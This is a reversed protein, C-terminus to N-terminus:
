MVCAEQDTLVMGAPSLDSARVKRELQLLQSKEVVESLVPSWKTAESVLAFIQKPPSKHGKSNFVRSKLSGTQDSSALLLPAADYYLSMTEAFDHCNWCALEELAISESAIAEQTFLMFIRSFSLRLKTKQAERCVKGLPSATSANRNRKRRWKAARGHDM